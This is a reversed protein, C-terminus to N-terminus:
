EKFNSNLKVGRFPKDNLWSKISSGGVACPVLLISVDSPVAELLESVFSMGCDLGTMKPYYRHLPEKVCVVKNEMNLALIRANVITDNLMVKGRGAMNSQGAM